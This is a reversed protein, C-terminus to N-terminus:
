TNESMNPHYNFVGLVNQFYMPRPQFFCVVIWQHKHQKSYAKTHGEHIIPEKNTQINQSLKVIYTQNALSSKFDCIGVEAEQSSLNFTHAVM